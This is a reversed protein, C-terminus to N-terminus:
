HYDVIEVQDPGNDAWVFCIRYQENIRISHEGARDGSLAELRNGPPKNLEELEVVSDLQDLKRSAVPWLRAPCTKRAEKTNEGNFIDETGRNGFSGIV